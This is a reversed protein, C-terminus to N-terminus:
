LSVGEFGEKAPLSPNVHSVLFAQFWLSVYTQTSLFRSRDAEHCLIRVNGINGVLFTYYMIVLTGVLFICYMIVRCPFCLVYYVSDIVKVCYTDITVIACVLSM